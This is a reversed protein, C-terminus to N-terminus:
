HGRPAASRGEFRARRRRDRLRRLRRVVLPDYSAAEASDLLTALLQYYRTPSLDFRTKIAAEKPGAETWWSREFDLIARERESLAM